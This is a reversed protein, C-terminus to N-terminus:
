RRRKTKKAPAAKKGSNTKGAPKIVAPRRLGLMEDVRIIDYGENKLEQLLLPLLMYFKDARAADADTHFVLFYGNLGYPMQRAKAMISQFISDSSHYDPMGPLTHDLLSITGPTANIVTLGLQSAYNSVSENYRDNPSLYVPANVHKIGFPKLINFNDQIAASFVDQSNFLEDCNEGSCAAMAATGLAGVYHGRAKLQKVLGPSSKVMETTLFFSAHVKEKGLIQPIAKAGSGSKDGTFIIAIRKKASDGRIIAGNSFELGNPAHALAENEKSALLYILAATGEITPLNTNYDAVDDHYVALSSQWGAYIDKKILSNGDAKQYRNASVPGNVLGGKNIDAWHINNPSSVSNGEPFGTVMTVGWPNCGFLWDINAQAVAEYASDSCAERYKICQLAFWVALNNSGSVFPLEHFFANTKARQWSNELVTKHSSCNNENANFRSLYTGPAQLLTDSWNIINFKAKASFDKYADLYKKDQKVQYLGDAAMSLATYFSGNNNVPIKNAQIAWQYTNIARETLRDAYNADTKAIIGSGLSFVGSLLAAIESRSRTTNALNFLTDSLAYVPRGKSQYGINGARPNKNATNKIEGVQRYLQDKSPHMKILWDLGWKAEDLVDPRDNKGTGDTGFGDNFLSPFHQYASLLYWTASAVTTIEQINDGANQWGGQVDLGTTDPLPGGISYDGAKYFSDRTLGGYRQQRLFQLCFDAAGKYVNHSIRITDSQISDNVILQYNGPQVLSSLNIRYTHEFPGYKGYDKESVSRMNLVVRGYKTNRLQYRQLRFSPNRSAVVVSKSELPTYGLQNYRIVTQASLNVPVLFLLQLALFGMWILFRM